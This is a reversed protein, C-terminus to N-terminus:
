NDMNRTFRCSPYNTCGWFKKNSRIQKKITLEANCKPCYKKKLSNEDNLVKNYIKNTLTQNKHNKTCFVYEDQFKVTLCEGCPKHSFKLDLNQLRFENEYKDDLIETTCYQYYTEPLEVFNKNTNLLSLLAQGDILEITEGMKKSFEIAEKTFGSTTVIKGKNVGDAMMVGYLKQIVPRSVKSNENYRKCEVYEVEQNRRLIIDKGEDNTKSTLEVQYGKSEYMKAVEEEFKFPDMTKYYTLEKKLKEVILRKLKVETENNKIKLDEFDNRNKQSQITLKDKKIQDEQCTKCTMITKGGKIGHICLENKFRHQSYLEEIKDYMWYLFVPVLWWLSILLTFFSDFSFNIIFLIFSKLSFGFILILFLYEVGKPIKM